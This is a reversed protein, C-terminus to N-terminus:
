VSAGSEDKSRTNIAVEDRRRGVLQELLTLEGLDGEDRSVAFVLIDLRICM